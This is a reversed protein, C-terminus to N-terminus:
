QLLLQAGADRRLEQLLDELEKETAELWAKTGQVDYDDLDSTRAIGLAQRISPIEALKLNAVVEPKNNLLGDLESQLKAFKKLRSIAEGFRLWQQFSM